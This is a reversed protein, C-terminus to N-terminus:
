GLVRASRRSPLVRDFRLLRYGTLKKLRGQPLDSFPRYLGLGHRDAEAVLVCGSRNASCDSEELHELRRRQMLTCLRWPRSPTLAAANRRFHELAVVLTVVIFSPLFCIGWEM